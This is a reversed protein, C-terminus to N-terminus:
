RAASSWRPAARRMAPDPRGAASAGAAHLPRRAPLRGLRRLRACRDAGAKRERRHRHRQCGRHPATGGAGQLRQREASQPIARETGPRAPLRRHRPCVPHRDPSASASTATRSRGCSATMPTTTSSPSHCRRCAATPPLRTTPRPDLLRGVKTSLVWDDRNKDRLADGVRHEAAGVGYFPATDVYRVGADWAATVIAEGQHQTIPIRSGGMTATGLGLTTVQLKTRGVQRKEWMQVAGKATPPLNPPKERRHLRSPFVTIQLRHRRPAASVAQPGTERTDRSADTHIARHRNRVPDTSSFPQVPPAPRNRGANRRPNRTEDQQCTQPYFPVLRHHRTSLSAHRGPTQDTRVLRGQSADTGRQKGPPGVGHGVFM